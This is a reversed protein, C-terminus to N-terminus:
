SHNAVRPMKMMRQNLHNLHYAAAYTNRQECRLLANARYILVKYNVQVRSLFLLSSFAPEAILDKSWSLVIAL